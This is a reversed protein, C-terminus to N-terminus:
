WPKKTDADRMLRKASVTTLREDKFEVDHEPPDSESFEVDHNPFEASHEQAYVAGPQILVSATSLLLLLFASLIIRSIRMKVVKNNWKNRM